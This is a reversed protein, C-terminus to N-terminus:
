FYQTGGGNTYCENGEFICNEITTPVEFISAAGGSAGSKNNKFQSNQITLSAELDLSNTGTGNVFLAGGTANANHAIDDTTANEYFVCGDITAVSKYDVIAAGLADRNSADSRTMSGNKFTLNKFTCSANDLKVIGSTKGGDFGDNQPDSGQITVIKKSIVYQADMKIFGSVYLVDGNQMKGVAYKLTAFPKEASLGDNADNGTESIYYDTAMVNGSLLTM